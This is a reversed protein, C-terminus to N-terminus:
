IKPVNFTKLKISNQSSCNENTNGYIPLKDVLKLSDSYEVAEEYTAFWEFDDSLASGVNLYNYKDSTEFQIRTKTSETITTIDGIKIDINCNYCNISKRVLWTGKSYKPISEKNPEIIEAWVGKYYVSTGRSGQVIDDVNNKYFQLSNDVIYTNLNEQKNYISYASKFETGKPYRKKAYELLREKVEEDSVSIFYDLCLKINLENVWENDYFGYFETNSKIFYLHDDTKYWKNFEFPKDKVIEVEGLGECEPCDITVETHGGPYLKAEITTGEGNCYECPEYDPISDEEIIKDPHGDPLYQQIESLDELLKSNKIFDTNSWQSASFYQGNTITNGKIRDACINYNQDPKIYFIRDDKYIYKYWKGVEFKPINVKLEGEDNYQDLDEKPIFKDQKICTNLWKKEEPTAIRINKLYNEVTGWLGSSYYTNFKAISGSSKINNNKIGSFECIWEKNNNIVYYIEGEVLDDVTLEKPKIEDKLVYKKFQDFTIEEGEKVGMRGVGAWNVYRCGEANYSGPNVKQKWENLIEANEPTVKIYWKEPLIFEKKLISVDYPKGLRDYEEIEQKTAYRWTNPESYYVYSSLTNKDVNDIEVCLRDKNESQKYCFNYSLYVSKTKYLQVIYDGKKFESMKVEM